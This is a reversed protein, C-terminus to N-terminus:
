VAENIEYPVQGPHLIGEEQFLVLNCALIEWIQMGPYDM